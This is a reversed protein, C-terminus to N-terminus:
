NCIDLIADNTDVYARSSFSSAGVEFIGVSQAVIARAGPFENIEDEPKLNEMPVIWKHWTSSSPGQCSTLKSNPLYCCHVGHVRRSFRDEKNTNRIFDFTRLADINLSPNDDVLDCSDVLNKFELENILSTMMGLM